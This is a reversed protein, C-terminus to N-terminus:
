VYRPWQLLFPQATRFRIIQIVYAELNERLKILERESGILSGWVTYDPVVHVQSFPPGGRPLPPSLKIAFTFIHVNLDGCSQCKDVALTKDVILSVFQLPPTSTSCWKATLQHLQHNSVQEMVSLVVLTSLYFIMPLIFFIM